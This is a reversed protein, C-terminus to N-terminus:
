METKMLCIDEKMGCTSDSQTRMTMMTKEADLQLDMFIMIRIVSRKRMRLYRMGPRQCKLLEQKKWNIRESSCWHPLATFHYMIINIMLKQEKMVPKCIHVNKMLRILLIQWMMVHFIRIIIWFKQLIQLFLIRFARVQKLQLM